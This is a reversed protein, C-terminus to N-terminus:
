EQVEDEEEPGDGLKRTKPEPKDTAKGKRNAPKAEPTHKSDKMFFRFMEGTANNIQVSGDFEWGDALLANQMDPFQPTRASSARIMTTIKVM